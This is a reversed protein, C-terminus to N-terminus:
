QITTYMCVALSVLSRVAMWNPSRESFFATLNADVPYIQKVQQVHDHTLYPLPLMSLCVGVNKKIIIRDRELQGIFHHSATHFM